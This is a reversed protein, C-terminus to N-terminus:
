SLLEGLNWVYEWIAADVSPVTRLPEGSIVISADMAEQEDFRKALM